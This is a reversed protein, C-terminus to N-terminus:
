STCRTKNASATVAPPVAEALQLRGRTHSGAGGGDTAGLGGVGVQGRTQSGGGGGGRVTVGVAPAIGPTVSVGVPVTVGVSVTVGPACRDTVGEREGTIQEVQQRLQTLEGRDRQHAQDLWTVMQSLQSHEM